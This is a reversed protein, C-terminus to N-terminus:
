ESGVTSLQGHNSAANVTQHSQQHKINYTHPVVRVHLVIQREGVRLLEVVLHVARRVEEVERRQVLTFRDTRVAFVEVVLRAESRDNHTIFQSYKLSEDPNFM